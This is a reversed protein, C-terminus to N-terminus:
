RKQRPLRFYGTIMSRLENFPGHDGILRQVRYSLWEGSSLVINRFSPSAGLRDCGTLVTPAALSLGTLMKRRTILRAM